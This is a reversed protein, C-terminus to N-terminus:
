DSFLFNLDKFKQINCIEDKMIIKTHLIKSLKYNKKIKDNCLVCKINIKNKFKEIFQESLKQYKSIYDWDDKNEFKELIKESLNKYKLVYQKKEEFLFEDFSRYVHIFQRTSNSM